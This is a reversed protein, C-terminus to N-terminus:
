LYYKYPFIVTILTPLSPNPNANNISFAPYSTKPTSM